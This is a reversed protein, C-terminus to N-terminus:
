SHFVQLRLLPTRRSPRSTPSFPPLTTLAALPTIFAPKLNTCLAICIQAINYRSLIHDMEPFNHTSILPALTNSIPSQLTQQLASVTEGLITALRDEM